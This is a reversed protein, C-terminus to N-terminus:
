RKILHRNYVDDYINKPVGNEDTDVNFKLIFGVKTEDEIYMRRFLKEDEENEFNWMDIHDFDRVVPLPVYLPFQGDDDSDWVKIYPIVDIDVSAGPKNTWGYFHGIGTEEFGLDKFVSNMFVHDLAGSQLHKTYWHRLSYIMNDNMVFNSEWKPNKYNFVRTFDDEVIDEFGRVEVDKSTPNGDEDVDPLKAVVSRSEPQSDGVLFRADAEEGLENIVNNRYFSFKEDLAAVASVALGHWKKLVSYGKFISCGGFVCLGIGPAFLRFLKGATVSYVQIVDKKRDMESYQEESYGNIERRTHNMMEEHQALVDDVKLCAQGTMFGGACVAITGAAIGIAPLHPKVITYVSRAKGAITGVVSM